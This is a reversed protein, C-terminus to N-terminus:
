NRRYDCNKFDCGHCPPRDDHHSEGEVLPVVFSISKKPEMMCHDNLSIGIPSPDLMSFVPRQGSTDWKGYGPSIQKATSLGLDRADTCIFTGCKHAVNEVARNGVIDAIMGLLFDGCAFSEDILSDIEPGITCIAVALVTAGELSAAFTKDEITIGNIKIIDSKDPRNFEWCAYIAKGKMLEYCRDVESVIKDMIEPQVDESNKYGLPGLLDDIRINVDIDKIKPWNSM